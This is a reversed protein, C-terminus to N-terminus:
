PSPGFVCATLLPVGVMPPRSNTAAGHQASSKADPLRRCAPSRPRPAPTRRSRRPRRDPSSGRASSARCRPSRPRTFNASVSPAAASNRAKSCHVTRAQAVAAYTGNPADRRPRAARRRAANATAPATRRRREPRRRVGDVQRVPEVTQRGPVITGGAARAQAAEAADVPPGPATATAERRGARRQAEQDEVAIRRADKHAVGSRKSSPPTRAPTLM